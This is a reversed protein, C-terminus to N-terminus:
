KWHPPPPIYCLDLSCHRIEFKWGVLPYITLILVVSWTALHHVVANIGIISEPWFLCALCIFFGHSSAEQTRCPPPESFRPLDTVIVFSSNKRGTPSQHCLAFSLFYPALSLSVQSSCVFARTHVRGSASSSNKGTQSSLCVLRNLTFRPPSLPPCAALRWLWYRWQIKWVSHFYASFIPM